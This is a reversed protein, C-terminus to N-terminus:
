GITISRRPPHIFNRFSLLLSTSCTVNRIVRARIQFGDSWVHFAVEECRPVAVVGILIPVVYHDASLAVDTPTLVLYTNRLTM